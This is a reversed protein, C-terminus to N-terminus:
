GLRRLILVLLLNTAGWGLVLLAGLVLAVRTWFHQYGELDSTLPVTM